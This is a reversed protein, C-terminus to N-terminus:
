RGADGSDVKRRRTQVGIMESAQLEFPRLTTDAQGNWPKNQMGGPEGSCAVASRDSRGRRM